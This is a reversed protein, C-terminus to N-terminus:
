IIDSSHDDSMIAKPMWIKGTIICSMHRCVSYSELGKATGLVSEDCQKSVGVTNYLLVFFVASGAAEVVCTFM